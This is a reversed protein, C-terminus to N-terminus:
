LKGGFNLYNDYRSKLIKGEKVAKKINCDQENIHTCNKYPCPYKSFEIFTSRLENNDFDLDLASFGPTDMILMKNTAFLEVHRTTHKGRGLAKSIEGEILNLHPNIKNLLSSKGAGTQGTLAITKNKLYKTLQNIKKNNFVKIGIKEYYKIIKKIEYKDQGNMLDLKTLCIVPEIKNYTIISILKDLLNLSLNPEKISTVIVTIDINAVPPRSLINKRPLIETIVKESPDVICYDGVVPTINENRFKGRASCILIDKLLKVSYQNSIIKIIQGKM